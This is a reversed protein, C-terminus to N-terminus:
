GAGGEGAVARDQPTLAEAAERLLSRTVGNAHFESWTKLREILPRSDTEGVDEAGSAPHADANEWVKQAARAMDMHLDRIGGDPSAMDDWGLAEPDSHNYFRNAEFLGRAWATIQDEDARVDGSAPHASQLVSLIADAEALWSRVTARDYKGSGIANHARNILSRASSM